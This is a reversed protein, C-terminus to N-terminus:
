HIRSTSTSITFASGQTREQYDVVLGELESLLGPRILLAKAIETYSRDPFINSGSGGYGATIAAVRDDIIEWRSGYRLRCVNRLIRYLM